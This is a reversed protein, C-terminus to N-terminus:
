FTFSIGLFPGTLAADLRYPGSQYDVKLYRWGGVVAGWSFDYGVTGIGQWTFDSGGTGIDAQLLAQWNGSFRKTWRAGAVGDAWQDSGDLSRDGSPTGQLRLLVNLNYYRAGAYIDLHTGEQELLDYGASAQLINGRIEGQVASYLNPNRTPSESEVSAYTWDGFATWRGNRWGVNLMAGALQYNEWLKGFDVDAPGGSGSGGTGLTGEFGAAWLYPTIRWESGAQAIGTGAPLLTITLIACLTPLIRM